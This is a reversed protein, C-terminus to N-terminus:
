AIVILLDWFSFCFTTKMCFLLVLVHKPLTQGASFFFLTVGPLRSSINNYANTKQRHLRCIPKGQLARFPVAKRSNNVKNKNMWCKRWRRQKMVQVIEWLSYLYIFYKSNWIARPCSQAINNAGSLRLWCRFVDSDFRLLTKTTM